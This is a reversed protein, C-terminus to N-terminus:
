RKNLLEDLDRVFKKWSNYDCEHGLWDTQINDKKLADHCEIEKEVEEKIQQLQEKLLYEKYRFVLEPALSSMYTMRGMSYRVTSLLLVWMDKNEVKM